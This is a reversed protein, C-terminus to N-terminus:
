YIPFYITTLWKSSDPEQLRNTVLGAYPIAPMTLEYDEVFQYMAKFGRQIRSEPGTIAASLNNGLVMTKTAINATSPLKTNVPLAVRTFFGGGEAKAQVFMMPANTAKAAKAAAYAELQGIHTYIEATSPYEKTTFSTTILVSDTMTGFRIPAGYTNKPDELLLKLQLLQRQMYAESLNKESLLQIRQWPWGGGTFTTSWSLLVSDKRLGIVLLQSYYMRQHHRLVGVLTGPGSQRVTFQYSTDTSGASAAIKSWLSDQALFRSVSRGNAKLGFDVKATQVGPFFAYIAALGAVAVLSVVVIKKMKLLRALRCIYNQLRQRRKTELAKGYRKHRSQGPGGM